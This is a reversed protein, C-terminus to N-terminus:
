IGIEELLKNIAKIIFESINIGFHDAGKRIRDKFSQAVKFQITTDKM